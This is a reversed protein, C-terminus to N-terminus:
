RTTYFKDFCAVTKEMITDYAFREVSQPSTEKLKKRLASHTYIHTMAETMADLDDLAVLIGFDGHEIGTKLQKHPDSNPALLERPGSLCDTSIIPVGLTLAEIQANPLGEARTATVFCDSKAMLQLADNRYGLLFVRKEQGCDKILQRLKKEDEGTGVLWLQCDLGSLKEMARILLQQNKHVLLNSVCIFIFKELQIGEPLPISLPARSQSKTKELHIANFIVEYNTRIALTEALAIHTGESNPIILDAFGYLNKILQLIIKGSFGYSQYHGVPSSKEGLIIQGRWGWLRTFSAILNPRTLQSYSVPLNNKELYRKYRFAYFPIMLFNLASKSETETLYFVKVGDLPPMDGHRITLILHIEYRDKMAEILLRLDKEAGGIILRTIFFAIKPKM